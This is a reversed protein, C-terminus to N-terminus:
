TLGAINQIMSVISQRQQYLITLSSSGNSVLENYFAMWQTEEDDDVEDIADISSQLNEQLDTLYSSASSIASNYFGDVQGEVETLQGLAEDVVRIAQSTETAIDIAGDSRLQDLQGSLGGLRAALLSPLALTSRRAENGLLDFTM